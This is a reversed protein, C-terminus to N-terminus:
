VQRGLGLIGDYASTDDSASNLGEWGEIAFYSFASVSTSGDSQLSVKDTSSKGTFTQGDVKDSQATSDVVTNSSSASADYTLTNCNTCANTKMLLWDKTSDMRVVVEENASGM